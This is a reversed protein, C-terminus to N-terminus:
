TENSHSIVYRRASPVRRAIMYGDGAGGAFTCIIIQDVMSNIIVLLSIFTDIFANPPILEIGM